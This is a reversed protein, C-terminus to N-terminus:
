TRQTYLPLPTDDPLDPRHINPNGSGDKQKELPVCTGKLEKEPGTPGINCRMGDENWYLRWDETRELVPVIPHEAGNKEKQYDIEEAQVWLMTIATAAFAVWMRREPKGIM